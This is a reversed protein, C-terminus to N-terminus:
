LGLHPLFFIKTPINLKPFVTMLELTKLWCPITKIVTSLSGKLACKESLMLCYSHHLLAGMAAAHYKLHGKPKLIIVLLYFM